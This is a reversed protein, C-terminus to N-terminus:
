IPNNRVSVGPQLHRQPRLSRNRKSARDTHTWSMTEANRICLVCTVRGIDKEKERAEEMGYKTTNVVVGRDDDRARSIAASAVIEKDRRRWTVILLGDKSGGVGGCVGDIELSSESMGRRFSKFCTFIRAERHRSSLRSRLFLGNDRSGVWVVKESDRIRWVLMQMPKGFRGRFWQSGRLWGDSFECADSGSPRCLALIRSSLAISGHM